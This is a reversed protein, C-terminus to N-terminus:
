RYKKVYREITYLNKAVTERLGIDQNESLVAGHIEWRQGSPSDSVDDTRWVFVNGHMESRCLVAHIDDITAEDWSVVRVSYTKFM